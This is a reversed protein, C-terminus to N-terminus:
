QGLDRDGPAQGPGRANAQVGRYQQDSQERAEVVDRQRLRQGQDFGVPHQPRRAHQRDALEDGVLHRGEVRQPIGQLGEHTNRRAHQQRPTREVVVARACLQRGGQDATRDSGARMQGLGARPRRDIVRRLRDAVPQGTEGLVAHHQRTQEEGELMRPHEQHQQHQEAAPRTAAASARARRPTLRGGGARCTRRWPRPRACPAPARTCGTRSRAM